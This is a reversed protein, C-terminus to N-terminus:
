NKCEGSSYSDYTNQDSLYIEAKISENDPAHFITKRKGNEYTTKYSLDTLLIYCNEDTFIKVEAKNGTIKYLIDENRSGEYYGNELEGSIRFSRTPDLEFTPNECFEKGCSTLILLLAILLLIKM